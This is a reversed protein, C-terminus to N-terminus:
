PMAALMGRLMDVRADTLDIQHPHHCSVGLAEMASALRPWFEDQGYNNMKKNDPADPDVPSKFLPCVIVRSLDDVVEPSDDVMLFNKGYTADVDKAETKPKTSVEDLLARSLCSRLQKLGMAPCCSKESAVDSDCFVPKKVALGHRALCREIAPLKCAHLPGRKGKSCLYIDLYENGGFCDAIRRLAPGLGPRVVSDPIVYKSSESTSLGEPGELDSYYLNVWKDARGILTGDIDLFLILKPPGM